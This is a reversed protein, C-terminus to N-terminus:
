SSVSSPFAEMFPADPDTELAKFFGDWPTERISVHSPVSDWSKLDDPIMSKRFLASLVEYEAAREKDRQIFREVFGRIAPEAKVVEEVCERLQRQAWKLENDALKIREELSCKATLAIESEDVAAQHAARAEKVSLPFEGRQGLAIDTLYRAANIKAEELATAAREVAGELRAARINELAAEAGEKQRVANRHREIAVALATREPSRPYEKSRMLAQSM